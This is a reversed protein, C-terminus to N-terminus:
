KRNNNMLMQSQGTKERTKLEVTKKKLRESEGAKEESVKV